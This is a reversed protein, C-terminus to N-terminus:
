VCVEDIDDNSLASDSTYGNPNASDYPTFGLATTVMSSDIGTIFGSPNADSYPTFGLANTVDTSTIGTIYGADNTFASVSTPVTPIVPLNSLDNYNGTTAVTALESSEVFDLDNNLDSVNTPITPTNILDTYDGTTAVTALDSAEVFHLDNELDSVKSPIDGSTIYGADNYFASVNTPVTPIDSLNAKDNLVAMLDSQDDLDGSIQGWKASIGLGQRINGNLDLPNNSRVVGNLGTSKLIVDGQLDNILIM